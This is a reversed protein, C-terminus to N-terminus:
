IGYESLKRLISVEDPGSAHKLHIGRASGLQESVADLVEFSGYLQILKHAGRIKRYVEPWRSCDAADPGPVWQVGKLAEIQLLSDLHLLQGPGDLHYFPNALKQCSLRLEPKVFEAFMDPGIMYCFDCQLMYCPESSYIASWDSYGPNLPQLVANLATYYRHWAEHAEGVLRLVEEPHDYLDFLLEQGPRFASLIDLIGGLDTMGMLVQGQWRRMGAAYIESVRRFWVNDPDFKFHLEQIPCDRPPHFWVRGTSNDLMGGLFAAVIGPGFCDLNFYPFADGLFRYQSLEYDIRDILAEAPISLDACTAQSLLPAAPEPRNAPCDKITVPILPRDLEGRWWKDHTIRVQQWRDCTFDISM